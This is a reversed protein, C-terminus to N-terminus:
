SEPGADAPPEDDLRSAADTRPVGNAPGQHDRHRARQKKLQRALRDRAQDIATRFDGATAEAHLPEGRDVSALAEVDRRNKEELLTVEVRSIRPEYRDLEGFQEEVHARLSDTLEFHRAAIIVQM